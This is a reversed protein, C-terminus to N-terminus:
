LGLDFPDDPNVTSPEHLATRRMDIVRESALAEIAAEGGDAGAVIADVQDEALGETLREQALASLHGRLVSRTSPRSAGKTTAKGTRWAPRPFQVVLPARFSYHSLAVQGKPLTTIREQLGGPLRGYVGSALEGEPTVGLARTAANDRILSDFKSAAQGLGWLSLGAYRGQTAIRQLQRKLAGMEGGQAPAFENLEDALIVLHDVGLEGAEASKLLREVTRAVVLNRMDAPLPAIDVVVVQGHRWGSEPVDGASTAKEKTFLGLGRAPLASLMRWMRRVTAVHHSRWAMPTNAEEADAIHSRFWEDLKAFTDVRESGKSSLVIDRFEALFSQAKEDESLWPFLFRLYPWVQVLDWRLALADQRASHTGEGGPLGPAYVTVDEFPTAPVGLAEYIGLDVEDLAKDESPPMDPWVLDEGKVNVILAGIAHGDTGGHHLASRLLVGAYSSKAAQGSLGSVILHAAEPGLLSAGDLCVKAFSGDALPVVGAPVTWDMRHYGTADLMENATAARVAGARVPRLAKSYFVQVTAVMVAPERSILSSRYGSGFDATIPDKAAGVTRMDVVAGIIPGEATEATVPTGIEVKAGLKEDVIFEFRGVPTGTAPLYVAGLSSTTTTGTDTM